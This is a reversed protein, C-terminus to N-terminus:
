APLLNSIDVLGFVSNAMLETFKRHRHLVPQRNHSRLGERGHERIPATSGVLCKEFQALGIGLVRRHILGLMGMEPRSSLRAVKFERLASHARDSQSILKRASRASYLKNTKEPLLNEHIHVAKSFLALAKTTCRCCWRPTGM